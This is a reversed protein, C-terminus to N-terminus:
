WCGSLFKLYIPKLLRKMKKINTEVKIWEDFKTKDMGRIRLIDGIYNANLDYPDINNDEKPQELYDNRISKPIGDVYTLSMFKGITKELIERFESPDKKSNKKNEEMRAVEKDFEDKNINLLLQFIEYISSTDVAPTSHSLDTILPSHKSM